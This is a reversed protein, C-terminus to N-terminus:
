TFTGYLPRLTGVHGYRSVPVDCMSNISFLFANYLHSGSLVHSKQTEDSCKVTVCSLNDFMSVPIHIEIM